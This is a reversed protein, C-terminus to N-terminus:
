LDWLNATAIVPGDEEPWVRYTHRPKGVEVFGETDQRSKKGAV